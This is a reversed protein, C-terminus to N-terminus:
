SRVSSRRAIWIGTLIVVAGLAQVPGLPEALFLWAWLAAMLPQVLLSVSAFTVPLQALGYAILSQGFVQSVLALCVVVMWGTTTSALLREGNLISVILVAAACIPIAYAMSAITDYATRLRQITLLYAGYFLGTVLGFADGWLHRGGLVVSTQMLVVTGVMAIAMGAPM